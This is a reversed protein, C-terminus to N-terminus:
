GIRYFGLGTLLAGDIPIGEKVAKLLEDENMLVAELVESPELSPEAVQRARSAKVYFTKQTSIGPYPFASGMLEFNEAVYGTEEKLERAAAILPDEGEDVYGAPFCLLAEGVPHRYEEILIWRGQEDQAMVVVASPKTTLVFYDYPAKGARSLRDCRIKVFNDFLQRSELVKPFRKPDLKWM